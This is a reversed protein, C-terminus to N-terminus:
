GRRTSFLLIEIREHSDNQWGISRPGTIVLSDGTDIAMRDDPDTLVITAAGRLVYAFTKRGRALVQAGTRGEPELALLLAELRGDSGNPM